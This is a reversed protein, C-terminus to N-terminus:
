RNLKKLDDYLSELPAWDEIHNLEKWRIADQLALMQEESPKWHYYSRLSKLREIRWKKQEDNFEKDYLIYSELEDFLMETYEDREVPKQEKQKDISVNRIFDVLADEQTTGFGVIGEQINDGKLICWQNGDKYPKPIEASLCIADISSIYDKQKELYALIQNTDVPCDSFPCYDKYQGFYKILWNRIREDESASVKQEVAQEIKQARIERFWEEVFADAIRLSEAVALSPVVEGIVGHKAELVGQIVSIAVQLRIEERTM